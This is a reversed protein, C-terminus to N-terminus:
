GRSKKKRLLIKKFPKKLLCWMSCWEALAAQLCLAPSDAAPLSPLTCAPSDQSLYVGRPLVAGQLVGLNLTQAMPSPGSVTSLPLACSPCCCLNSNNDEAIYSLLSISHRIFQQSSLSQHKELFVMETSMEPAQGWCVNPSSRANPCPRALAPVASSLEPQQWLAQCGWKATPAPWARHRSQM